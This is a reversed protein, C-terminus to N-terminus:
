MINGPIIPAYKIYKKQTERIQVGSALSENAKGKQSSKYIHIQRGFWVILIVKCVVTNNITVSM